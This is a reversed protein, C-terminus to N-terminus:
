KSGAQQAARQLELQRQADQKRGTRSYAIALQYHGGPDNPMGAVYKELVPIAEAYKGAANLAVGLGLYAPLFSGNDKTAELFHQTAEAVQQADWALAGLMYEAEASDPVVKLEEEFEQKAAAKDADTPTHGIMIMRGLQYHIGPTDPHEALIKHYIEAAQKADGQSELSQAKMEMAQPSSPLTTVLKHAAADALQSFAHFTDYLVQPDDPFKRNLLALAEVADGMSGLAMGCKARAMAAAYVLPKNTLRPLAGVLLPLARDCAGKQALEIGRHARATAGEGATQRPTQARVPGAALACALPLPFAFSFVKHM